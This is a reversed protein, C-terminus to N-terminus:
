PPTMERNLLKLFDDLCGIAPQDWVFLNNHGKRPVPCWRKIEAPSSKYVDHALTVPFLEDEEGQIILLPTSIKRIVDLPQECSMLDEGLRLRVLWRIYWPIFRKFSPLADVLSTVTGELIMGDISRRAALHLAMFSGLSRGYVLVPGSATSPYQQLSDYIIITDQFLLEVTPSGDSFGYGRYDVALIALQYRDALWFLRRECNRVTEGNGYFYILTGRPSKPLLLWGRLQTSDSAIIEVNRRDIGDPILEFKRPFLFDAEHLTKVCGALSLVAIFCIMAIIM